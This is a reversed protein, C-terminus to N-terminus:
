EEADEGWLRPYNKGENIWWIDEAGNAAEDAPARGSRGCAGKEM